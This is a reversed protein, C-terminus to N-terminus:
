AVQSSMEKDDVRVVTNGLEDVDVVVTKKEPEEMQQEVLGKEARDLLLHEALTDELMKTIARRLPRAGYAPDFGEFVVREKFADSLRLEMPQESSALRRAVKAFELEAIERVEALDLSRFVVIEDLRNLFEPRFFSKMEEHVQEKMQAHRTSGADEEDGMADFGMSLGGAAGKQVSRSGLNSTMVVLTNAFSVTRGSSDTLRGDDLVQLLLNFVDPHAKEVEDFLVLSHPRRRVAETLKGGDSYGTYGPPAGILKSVTHKEMYESMDLRILSEESGFFTKSLTKCLETKGVGTPGCFMFGAIPRNPNRLGARARRMAQSVSAVAGDQGIVARALEGEMRLLRASESATVQEVPIGTWGAVVQAVDEETVHANQEALAQVRGGPENCLQALVQKERSKLRKAEEFQEAAVVERRQARLVRLEEMLQTYAPSDPKGGNEIRARLEMEEKKLEGAVIYQEEEVAKAKRQLVTELQVKMSDIESAADDHLHQRVKSGAEDIVDIAKDPLHRDAIYQSSLRVAAELAEPTYSVEHHREYRPALGQLIRLAEDTTPEPVTVPQFRRELAPDKEIYRRYEDMTTAGICQLEGRALAPKLMNAADMGSAAEGGGSGAGVLTHIEDIVLIVRRNSNTVEEVVARLRQEFDGRYRTGALLLAFDLQVVIKDRLSEPVEEDAIRQALGHAISTKGVGAEGLLMPNNKSRRGLIRICRALEDERGVLPELKGIRALATLDQGYKLTEDLSVTPAVPAGTPPSRAEVGVGALRDRDQERAIATAVRKAVEDRSCGLARAVLAAGQSEQRSLVAQLLHSTTVYASAEDKALTLAEELAVKSGDSFPLEPVKNGDTPTGAHAMMRRLMELTVGLEVLARGGLDTAEEAIGAVLVATGVTERGLRRAEAQALTLAKITKETFREFMMARLATGASRPQAVAVCCYSQVGRASSGWGCNRHQWRMAALGAVAAAALGAVAAAGALSHPQTGFAAPADIEDGRALQRPYTPDHVAEQGRLGPGAFIANFVLGFRHSALAAAAAAALLTFAMSLARSSGRM